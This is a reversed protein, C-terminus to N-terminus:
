RKRYAEIGATLRELGEVLTAGPVGCSVRLHGAQAFFEGPVVDVQHERVLFDALELTDDVGEIRPFAMVGFEPVTATVGPTSRLWQEFPPRSSRQVNRLPACLEQLHDLAYLAARLTPTPPDCWTLYARDVLEARREVLDDGLIMWGIRLAGLGYAKTLSGISVANPALSFAHVRHENPVYEMYVECSVLVGDHEGAVAALDRMREPGLLTGSPNHLNTVFVHGRECPRSGSTLAQDVHAPNVDWAQELRRAFPRPEAGFLEPLARVAEYSPVEVAVRSGPRFWRLGCLHMAGSAGLTILVREPDTGFLEALRRELAPQAEVTAFGLDPPGVPALLSPDAMPMGSQTLCWPSRASETHAWIAYPFLLEGQQTVRRCDAM